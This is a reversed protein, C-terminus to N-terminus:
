EVAVNWALDEKKPICSEPTCVAFRVVGKFDKDGASQATFEVAWRGETEGFTVADKVRQDAKKVSVGAPPTVTLRTPFEDNLKWVGKPVVVVTAAGQGGSALKGPAALRVTYTDTDAIVKSSTAIVKAQGSAGVAVLDGSGPKRAPTDAREPSTGTEAGVKTPAEAGAAEAATREPAASPAAQATKAVPASQETQNGAPAPSIETGSRNKCGLAFILSAALMWRTSKM